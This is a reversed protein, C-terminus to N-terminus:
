RTSVESLLPLESLIGAMAPENLLGNQRSRLQGRRAIEQRWPDDALLKLCADACEAADDWFVAEEGDCYMGLHETTREACFATGLITVEISRKTHLDRNGKSLLGLSVKSCQIAKAYEDDNTTGPGKWASKLIPWEKARDWRNGHISLPVGRRLLEVMFPGREPFWTGIFAVDSDWRAHDEATLVRPRHAVEDASRYVRIVKKAGLAQAEEVNEPRAVVVLDYAPVAKLYLRWSFRDRKGYPDDVVYNLVPINRRQLQQVLSPGVERGSDVWAVDFRRNGLEQLVGATVRAEMLLFGTEWNLKKRAPHQPLFRGPDLVTVQHGLRELAGIRHRNTGTAPALHLINM